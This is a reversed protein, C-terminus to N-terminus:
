LKRGRWDASHISAGASALVTCVEEHGYKKAIMYPSMRTVTTVLETDAGSEILANVCDMHGGKAAFYLATAGKANQANLNAGAELLVRLSSVAGYKAAYILPTFGDADACNVDVCRVADLTEEAMDAAVCAILEDPTFVPDPVFPAADEAATEAIRYVMGYCSCTPFPYYKRGPVSISQMSFELPKLGSVLKFFEKLRVARELPSKPSVSLVYSKHGATCKRFVQSLAKLDIAPVDLINSFLHLVPVGPCLDLGVRSIEELNWKITRVDRAASYGSLIRGARERAVDSMEILRVCRIEVGEARRRIEEVTCAAALGQGCGWDVVCLGTDGFDDFPVSPLFRRMKAVHIEGYLYLYDNLQSESVYIRVGRGSRGWALRRDTVSMQAVSRDIVANFSQGDSVM